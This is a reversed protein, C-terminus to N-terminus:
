VNDQHSLWNHYQRLLATQSNIILKTILIWEEKSMTCQEPPIDDLNNLVDYITSDKDLTDLFNNFNKM